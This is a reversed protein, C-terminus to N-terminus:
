ASSGTNVYPRTVLRATENANIGPFDEGFEEQFKLCADEPLSELEAVIFVEHLDELEQKFTAMQNDNMKELLDCYPEVPLFIKLRDGSFNDLISKLWNKMAKLDIQKGSLDNEYPQFWNYAAVTLAISIPAGGNCFCKNSWRKLYKICRRYQEVDFGNYKANIADKLHIPDSKEWFRKDEASNKKGKALDLCDDDREVYIALDVHYDPKGDKIYTATVCSRRINVTRNPRSLTEAVKSKLAVPDPYDECSCKFVLDVDIDYNGDLPKVGTHMSYSGQHFHTFAPADILNQKLEKILM